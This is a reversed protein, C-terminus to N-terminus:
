KVLPVIQSTIDTGGFLVSDKRLVVTYGLEKSKQTIVSDLQKDVENVKKVYADKITKRKQELQSEYKKALAQKEQPTQKKQIELSADDFWKKLDKAEKTRTDEAAKLTKSATLLKAVNVYGIKVTAGDSFAVNNLGLGLGFAFSCLVLTVLNKKM